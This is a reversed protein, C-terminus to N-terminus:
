ARNARRRRYGALGAMGSGFLLMTAPEPVPEGGQSVDGSRVALGYSGSGQGYGHGQFDDDQRGGGMGFGWANPPNNACETGSWYWSSVLNTFGGTNVLGWGSQSNGSTDLVGLNGLEGYYLHGMESSQINFGATTSGDYGYQYAGDVTSALRWADDNWSVSYGADLNITPSLGAAWTNQNDFSQSSNSYDLWIVSNGNNDDDWILNREAGAYTATGITTLDAQALGSMAMFALGTALATLMKKKM